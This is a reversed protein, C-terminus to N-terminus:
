TNEESAETSDQEKKYREYLARKRMAERVREEAVSRLAVRTYPTESEPMVPWGQDPNFAELEALTNIDDIDVVRRDSYKRVDERYSIVEEPIPRAGSTELARIVMWDTTSLINAARDLIEAKFENKLLFLNRPEGVDEEYVEGTEPSLTYTRGVIDYFRTNLPKRILPHIGLEILEKTTKEFFTTIPYEIGNAVVPVPNLIVERIEGNEVLAWM